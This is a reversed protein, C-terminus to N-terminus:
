NRTGTMRELFAAADDAGVFDDDDRDFVACEPNILVLKQFCRQLGATDILDIDGDGGWDGFPDPAVDAVADIEPSMEGFLGQLADVGNTIRIFDFGTAFSNSLIDTFRIKIPTEYVLCGTWFPESKQIFQHQM